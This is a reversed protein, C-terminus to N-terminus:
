GARESECARATSWASACSSPQSALQRGRGCSALVHLVGACALVCLVGPAPLQSRAGAHEGEGEGAATATRERGAERRLLESSGRRARAGAGGDVTDHERTLDRGGM